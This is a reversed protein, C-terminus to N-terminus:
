IALFLTMRAVNRIDEDAQNACGFIVDDIVALDMGSNREALAKLPVAGLEAALVSSLAWRLPAFSLPCLRM